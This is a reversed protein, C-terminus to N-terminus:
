HVIPTESDHWGKIADRCPLQAMRKNPLRVWVLVDGRKCTVGWRWGGAHQEVVIMDPTFRIHGHFGRRIEDDDWCPFGWSRPTLSRHAMKKAARMASAKTKYTHYYYYQTIVQELIDSM